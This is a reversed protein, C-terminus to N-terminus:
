DGALPIELPRGTWDDAIWSYAPDNLQVV